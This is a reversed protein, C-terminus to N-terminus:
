RITTNANNDLEADDIEEDTITDVFYNSYVGIDEIDQTLYVQVTITDASYTLVGDLPQLYRQRNVKRKFVEM